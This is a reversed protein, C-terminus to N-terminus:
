QLIILEILARIHVPDEMDKEYTCILNDFPYYGHQVYTSIKDIVNQRYEDDDMYSFPGWNDMYGFHEWVIQKGDSPRFVIFDPFEIKGDLALMTEYHYPIKSQDLLDAIM